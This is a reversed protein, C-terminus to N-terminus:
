NPMRDPVWVAETDFSANRTLNVMGTGAANVVYLDSSVLSGSEDREYVLFLIRDGRPSWGLFEAQTPPEPLSRSATTRIDVVYHGDRWYYLQSGNPSWPSRSYFFRHPLVGDALTRRNSGDVNMVTVSGPYVVVDDTRDFAVHTADPSLHATEPNFDLEAVNSGDADVAYFTTGVQCIHRRFAVRNVSVWGFPWVHWKPTEGCPSPQVPPLDKSVERSGSGDIGMVHIANDSEYAVLRGDPSLRPVRGCSGGIAKQGSGDPAMTWLRCDTERSFVVTRGDPTVDLSQYGDPSRTLNVLGTGDANMRYVDEGRAGSTTSIFLIQDPEAQEPDLLECGGAVIALQAAILAGRIRTVPV